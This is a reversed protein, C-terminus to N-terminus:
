EVSEVRCELRCVNARKRQTSVGSVGRCLRLDYRDGCRELEVVRGEGDRAM